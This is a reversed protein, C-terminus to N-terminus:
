DNKRQGELDFGSDFAKYIQVYYVYNSANVALPPNFTGVSVNATGFSSLDSISEKGSNFQDSIALLAMELSIFSYLNNLDITDLDLSVSFSANSSPLFTFLDNCSLYSFNYLSLFYINNTTSAVARKETNIPFLEEEFMNNLSLISQNEGSNRFSSSLSCLSSIIALDDSLSSLKLVNISKTNECIFITCSSTNLSLRSNALDSIESGSSVSYRANDRANFLHGIQDFSGCKLSCDNTLTNVVSSNTLNSFHRYIAFRNGLMSSFRLNEVDCFSNQYAFKNELDIIRKIKKNKANIM